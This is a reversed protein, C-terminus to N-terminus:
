ANSFLGLAKWHSWPLSDVQLAPSTPKVGLYPLDEPSPFSLGRELIRAQSIGNVSSDPPSCETPNCLTPCPKTVLCCCLLM